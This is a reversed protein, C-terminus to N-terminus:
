GKENEHIAGGSLVWLYHLEGGQNDFADILLKKISHDQITDAMEFRRIVPKFQMAMSATPQMLILEDIEKSILNIKKRLEGEAHIEVIINNRIFVFGDRFSVDGVITPVDERMINDSSSTLSNYFHRILYEHADNCTEATYFLIEISNGKEIIWRSKYRVVYKEDEIKRLTFTKKKNVKQAGSLSELVFSSYNIGSRVLGEKGTWNFFDVSKKYETLSKKGLLDQANASIITNCIIYFLILMNFIKFKVKM